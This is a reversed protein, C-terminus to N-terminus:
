KLHYGVWRERLRSRPIQLEQGALHHFVDVAFAGLWGLLLLLLLLLQRRQASSVGSQLDLAHASHQCKESHSGCSWGTASRAAPQPRQAWKAYQSGLCSGGKLHPFPSGVGSELAEPHPAECSHREFPSGRCLRPRLEEYLHPGFTWGSCHPPSVALGAPLAWLQLRSLHQGHHPRRVPLAAVLLPYPRRHWDEDPQM